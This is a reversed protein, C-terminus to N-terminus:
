ERPSNEYEVWYNLVEFQRGSTDTHVYTFLGFDYRNEAFNAADLAGVVGTYQTQSGSTISLGYSASAGVSYDFVVGVTTTEVAVEYGIELSGGVSIEEEVELTM